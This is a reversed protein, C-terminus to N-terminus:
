GPRVKNVCQLPHILIFDRNIHPALTERCRLIRIANLLAVPQSNPATHKREWQGIAYSYMHISIIAAEVVVPKM